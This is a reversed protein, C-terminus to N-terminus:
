ATWASLLARGAAACGCGTPQVVGGARHPLIKTHASRPTVGPVLRAGAIGPVVRRPRGGIGVVPRAAGRAVPPVVRKRPLMGAHRVVRAVTHIVPALASRRRAGVAVQRRELLPRGAAGVGADALTEPVLRLTRARGSLAAALHAGLHVAQKVAGGGGVACVLGPEGRQGVRHHGVEGDIGRHGDRQGVGQEERRGGAFALALDRQIQEDRDCREGDDGRQDTGRQVAKLM